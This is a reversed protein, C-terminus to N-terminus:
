IYIYVYIDYTYIDYIFINNYTFLLLMVGPQNEVRVKNSMLEDNLLSVHIFM